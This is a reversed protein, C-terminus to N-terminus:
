HAAILGPPPRHALSRALLLGGRPAVALVRSRAVLPALGLRASGAPKRHRMAALLEAGPYRRRWLLLGILLAPALGFVGADGGAVALAVAVGLALFLAIAMWRRGAPMLGYPKAALKV